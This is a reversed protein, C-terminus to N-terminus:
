GTLVLLWATTTSTTSNATRAPSTAQMKLKSRAKRSLCDAPRLSFGAEIRVGRFSTVGRWMVCALASRYFNSCQYGVRGPIAMSFLGWQMKRKAGGMEALREMFLVEESKTWPGNKQQVGPACFRYYYTNPNTKLQRYAQV